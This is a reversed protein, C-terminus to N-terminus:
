VAWLSTQEEDHRSRACNGLIFGLQFPPLEGPSRDTIFRFIHPLHPSNWVSPTFTMVLRVPILTAESYGTSRVLFPSVDHRSINDFIGVCFRYASMCKSGTLSCLFWYTPNHMMIQVSTSEGPHDSSSLTLTRIHFVNAASIIDFYKWNFKPKNWFFSTDICRRGMGYQTGETWVRSGM